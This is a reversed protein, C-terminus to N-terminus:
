GLLNQHNRLRLGLLAIGALLIAWIAPEPVTLTIDYSGKGSGAVALHYVGPRYLEDWYATLNTVTLLGAPTSTTSPIGTAPWSWLQSNGADYLSMTLDNLGTLHRGNLELGTGHVRFSWEDPHTSNTFDITYSDTFSGGSKTIVGLYVAAEGDQPTLTSGPGITYTNIAVASGSGLSLAILLPLLTNKM